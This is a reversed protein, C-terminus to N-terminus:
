STYFEIKIKLDMKDVAQDKNTAGLNVVKVFILQNWSPTDANSSAQSLPSPPPKTM